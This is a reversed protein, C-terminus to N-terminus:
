SKMWSPSNSLSLPCNTVMRPFAPTLWLQGPFLPVVQLQRWILHTEYQWIYLSPTEYWLNPFTRHSNLLPLTSGLRPSFSHSKPIGGPCCHPQGPLPCVSSSPCGLHWLPSAPSPGLSPVDSEPLGEAKNWATEGALSKTVVALGWTGATGGRNDVQLYKPRQLVFTGEEKMIVWERIWGPHVSQDSRGKHPGQTWYISWICKGREHWHQSVPAQRSSSFLPSLTAHLTSSKTLGPGPVRSSPSHQPVCTM